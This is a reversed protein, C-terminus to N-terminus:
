RQIYRHFRPRRLQPPHSRPHLRCAYTATHPRHTFAPIRAAPLQCAQCAKIIRHFTTYKEIIRHCASGVFFASCERLASYGRLVAAGLSRSAIDAESAATPSPAKGNDTRSSHSTTHLGSEGEATVPSGVASSGGAHRISTCPLPDGVRDNARRVPHTRTTNEMNDTHHVPTNPTARFGAHIDQFHGVNAGFRACRRWSMHFQKACRQQSPLHTTM